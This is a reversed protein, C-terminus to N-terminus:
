GLLEFFLVACGLARLQLLQDPPTVWSIQGGRLFQHLVESSRYAIRYRENELATLQCLSRLFGVLRDIVRCLRQIFEIFDLGLSDQEVVHEVIRAFPFLDAELAVCVLLHRNRTTACSWLDLFPDLLVSALALTYHTLEFTCKLTRASSQACFSEQQTIVEDVSSQLSVLRTASAVPRFGLGQDLRSDGEKM